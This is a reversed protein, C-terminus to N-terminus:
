VIGVDTIKLLVGEYTVMKYGLKGIYETDRVGYRGGTEAKVRQQRDCGRRREQCRGRWSM